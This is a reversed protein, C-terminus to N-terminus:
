RTQHDSVEHWELSSHAVLLSTKLLQLSNRDLYFPSVPGPRGGNLTSSHPLLASPPPRPPGESVLGGAATM